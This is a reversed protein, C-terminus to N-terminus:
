PKRRVGARKQGAVVIRVTGAPVSPDSNISVENGVVQKRLAEFLATVPASEREQWNAVVLTIGTPDAGLRMTAALFGSVGPTAGQSVLTPPSVTWNATRLINYLRASFHQPDGPGEFFIEAKGSPKRILEDTVALPDVMRPAQSEAIADVYRKLELQAEAAARQADATRQQERATNQQERELGAQKSILASRANALDSELRKSEEENESAREVARAAEGSTSLIRINDFTQILGDAGSVVESFFVEGCIGGVILLWGLFGVLTVWRPKRAEINSWANRAEHLVEPGELAVGFAVVVTAVSLWHFWSDRFSRLAERTSEDLVNILESPINM